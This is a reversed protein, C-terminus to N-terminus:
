FLGYLSCSPMKLPKPMLDFFNLVLGLRELILDVDNHGIHRCSALSWYKLTTDFKSFINFVLTERVGNLLYYHAQAPPITVAGRIARSERLIGPNGAM